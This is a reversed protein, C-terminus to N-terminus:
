HGVRKGGGALADAANQSLELYDAGLLQGKAAGDGPRWSRGRVPAPRAADVSLADLRWTRKPRCTDYVYSTALSGEEVNGVSGRLADLV